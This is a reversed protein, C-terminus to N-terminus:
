EVVVFLFDNNKGNFKHVLKYTNSGHGMHFDIENKLSCVFSNLQISNRLSFFSFKKLVRLSM